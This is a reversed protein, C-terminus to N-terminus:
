GDRDTRPAKTTGGRGIETERERLEALGHVANRGRYRLSGSQCRRRELRKRGRKEGSKEKENKKLQNSSRQLAAASGKQDREAEM